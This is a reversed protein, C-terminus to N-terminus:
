KDRKFVSLFRAAFMVVEKSNKVAIEKFIAKGGVTLAAVVSSAIITIWYTASGVVEGLLIIRAVIAVTCAGSVIGCIDGIVDGCINSVKEANKVLRVAMKAGKVKRAAMSLLPPLECATAAIGVADFLINVVVLLILLLFSVTLPATATTLESIYSFFGSLIFTIVIIKITWVAVGSLRKKKKVDGEKGGEKKKASEKPPPCEEVKPSPEECPAAEQEPPVSEEKEKRPLRHKVVSRNQPLAAIM